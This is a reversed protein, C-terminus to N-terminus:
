WDWGMKMLMLSVTGGSSNDSGSPSMTSASARRPKGTKLKGMGSMPIESGRVTNEQATAAAASIRPTHAHALATLGSAGTSQATTAPTRSGAEPLAQKEAGSATPMSKAAAWNKRERPRRQPVPTPNISAGAGPASAMNS